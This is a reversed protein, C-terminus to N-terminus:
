GSAIEPRNAHPAYGRMNRIRSPPRAPHPFQRPHQNRPPITASVFVARAIAAGLGRDGEWDKMRIVVTQLLTWTQLWKEPPKQSLLESNVRDMAVVLNFYVDWKFDCPGSPDQLSAGSSIDALHSASLEVVRLFCDLRDPPAVKKEEEDLWAVARDIFQSQVSM